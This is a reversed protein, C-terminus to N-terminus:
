QMGRLIEALRRLAQGRHSIGNKDDADLQATTCGRAPIYFLPDYGFGSEGRPEFAIVGEVAGCAEAIVGKADAVAVHCVFRASRADQPVDRMAALLKANNAADRRERDAGPPFAEEAYRASRVGPAGGLADVVLGSDDALCARGLARAYYVAKLRANQAFTAGDEVPEELPPMSDLGALEIGTGGLV